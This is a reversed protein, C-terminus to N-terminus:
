ENHLIAQIRNKVKVIMEASPISEAFAIYGSSEESFDDFPKTFEFFIKNDIRGAKKKSKYSEKITIGEHSLENHMQEKFNRDTIVESTKETFQKLLAIILPEDKSVTIELFGKWQWDFEQYYLDELFQSVKDKNEYKLICSPPLVFYSFNEKNQTKCKAVAGQKYLEKLVRYKKSYSFEKEISESIGMLYAFYMKGEDFGLANYLREKAASELMPNDISKFSIQSLTKKIKCSRKSTSITDKIILNM